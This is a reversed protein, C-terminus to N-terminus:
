NWLFINNLKHVFQIFKSKYTAMELRRNIAQLNPEPTQSFKPWNAGKTGVWTMGHGTMNYQFYGFRVQGVM